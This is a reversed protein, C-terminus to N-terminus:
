SPHTVVRRPHTFVTARQDRVFGCLTIDCREAADLALSTPASIASILELGARACKGVMELSVRGSLMVAHGAPNKGALWSKGIAKDLANHRGLDEAWTLLHGRSDFIAAGHTGGCAQFLEQRERLRERVAPLLDPSLTLRDGVKPLASVKSELSEAGCLGCSSVILLNRGQDDIRPPDNKLRARFTARDDLCPELSALEDPHDIVGETFLFGLALARLDCPTCLLTYSEARDVDITLPAEIVVGVSEDRPPDGGDGTAVRRAQVQRITAPKAEAMLRAVRGM